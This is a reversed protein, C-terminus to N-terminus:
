ALGEVEFERLFGEFLRRHGEEDRLIATIMDATVPDIDETLEILQNYHDIAGNEAEIVGKIVHVIDTQEAPPQLYTQEPKFDMSGPVTGYLEKIRTAFQQAHALEEQVDTQLSEIVEQARLGDPNVSNTIYSIVTELEMWYAQTLMEIIQQRQEAKDEALIGHKASRAPPPSAM